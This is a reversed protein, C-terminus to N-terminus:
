AAARATSQRVLLEPRLVIDSLPSDGAMHALLLRAAAIGMDRQRIRVTTLPPKIMDALPTDNYGTISMDAPCSLGREALADYCGLALLDNAAVIATIRANDHLLKLCASRGAERSYGSAECTLLPTAAGFAEIMAAGFGRARMRGTSLWSPGAIHAIRTHSLSLLHEVAMEIGRADDHLVAPVRGSGDTRNVLV